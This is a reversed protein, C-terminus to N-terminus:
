AAARDPLLDLRGQEAAARWEPVDHALRADALVPFGHEREWRDLDPVRAVATRLALALAGARSGVRLGPYVLSPDALCRRATVEFPEPARGTVELVHETPAGLAFTGGRVEAAYHRVQAIEFLPFGQARAAKAFMRDSVDRYTVTRGVVGSLIGAIDPASLLAPGTPRYSRGLHPGPDMLVHAAVAAIDEAAPPANLGDGFSGPLMGFHVVMPLPLLYVSAFLGPNVHVVDVTPMWRYVNNAIWHERTVPAPHTPHPNWGSMLAVVELRAEEAALAFLMTGELLHPAFPPCHFARQVDQLARQLDRYDGLDGVLVEAGLRELAASRADRRRVMARVPFGAALLQAVAPAGTRGAAGTVLIRPKM